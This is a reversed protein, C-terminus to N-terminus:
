PATGYNGCRRSLAWWRSSAVRIRQPPAWHRGGNVSPVLFLGHPLTEGKPPKATDWTVFWTLVLTGDKLCAVHPERDDHPTDAIM